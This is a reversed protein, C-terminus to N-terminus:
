AEGLPWGKEISTSMTGSWASYSRSFQSLCVELEFNNYNALAPLQGRFTSGGFISLIIKYRPKLARSKERLISLHNPDIDVYLEVWNRHKNKFYQKALAVLEKDKQVHLAIMLLADELMNELTPIWTIEQVERVQSSTPLERFILAPRNGEGLYLCHSPILGEDYSHSDGILIQATYTGM